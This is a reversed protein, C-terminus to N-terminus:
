FVDAPDAKRVRRMAIAGSIVCLGVALVLVLVLRELTMAMPMTLTARVVAYLALSAALGPIFGAVSLILSQEFVVGLLARNTFGMAKFTAYEAMHDHVDASLIEVVIVVGVLMGIVAGFTFIFAIPSDRQIRSKSHEIFAPMTMVMTDDYGGLRARIAAAVAGVDRGAEVRVLGVSPAGPVRNIAFEFFTQDSVVLAGEVGFTSGIQMTGVLTVTRGGLETQPREGREVADRLAAYDGRTQRDFLAAGTEVLLHQKASIEADRFAKFDPRVGMLLMQGREGRDDDSQKIWDRTSVYFAEADAVGPTGLAQLLRTRPFTGPNNFDRATSSVLVIDANLQRHIMVTSEFLMSMFGLQMFVLLVAFAVGATAIALRGTSHVLQKWGLPTRNFVRIPV